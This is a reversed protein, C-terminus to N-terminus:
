FYVCDHMYVFRDFIAILYHVRERLFEFIISRLLNIFIFVIPYKCVKYYALSSVM